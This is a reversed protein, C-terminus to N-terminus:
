NKENGTVESIDNPLIVNSGSINLVRINSYGQLAKDTKMSDTVIFTSLTSSVVIVICVALAYSVPIEVSRNLFQFLREYLNKPKKITNQIISEKLASSMKIDHMEENLENQLLYDWNDRKM